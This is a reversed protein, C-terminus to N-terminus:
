GGRVTEAVAAAVKADADADRERNYAALIEADGVAPAIPAGAGLLLGALAEEAKEAKAAQGKQYDMWRYNGPQDGCKVSTAWFQVPGDLLVQLNVYSEPLCGHAVVVIAPYDQGACIINGPLKGKNLYDANEQTFRYLVIRGVTPIINSM